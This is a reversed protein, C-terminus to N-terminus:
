EGAERAWTRANADCLRFREVVWRTGDEEVVEQGDASPRRHLDVERLDSEFHDSALVVRDAQTSRRETAARPMRPYAKSRLFEVAEEPTDFGQIPQTEDYDAVTEMVATGAPCSLGGQANSVNVAALSVVVILAASVVAGAVRLGNRKIWAM